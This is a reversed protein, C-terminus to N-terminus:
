DFLYCENNLHKLVMQYKEELEELKKNTTEVLKMEMERYTKRGLNEIRHELNQFASAFKEKDEVDLKDLISNMTFNLYDINKKVSDFEDVISIDGRNSYAGGKIVVDGATIEILSDQSNSIKISTDDLGISSVRGSGNWVKHEHPM